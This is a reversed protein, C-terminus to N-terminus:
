KVAVWCTAMDRISMRLSTPKTRPYVWLLIPHSWAKQSEQLKRAERLLCFGEKWDCCAKAMGRSEAKEGGPPSTQWGEPRKEASSHVSLSRLTKKHEEWCTQRSFAPSSTYGKTKGTQRQGDHKYAPSPTAWSEQAANGAGFDHWKLHTLSVCYNKEIRFLLFAIQVKESLFM